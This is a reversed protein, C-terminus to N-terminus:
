DDFDDGIPEFGIHTALFAEAVAAFARSHEPKCIILRSIDCM